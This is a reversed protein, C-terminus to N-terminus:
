FTPLNGLNDAGTKNGDTRIYKVGSLEVIGVNDGKRWGKDGSYATVIMKGGDLLSIVKQRAVLQLNTLDGNDEYIKVNQIHKKEESYNVGVIVYDAWKDTM